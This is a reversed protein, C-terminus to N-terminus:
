NASYYSVINLAFMGLMIATGIPLGDHQVVAEANSAVGEDYRTIHERVSNAQKRAFTRLVFLAALLLVGCAFVLLYELPPYLPSMALLLKVDGGGLVGKIYGPLSLLMAIVINSVVAATHWDNLAVGVSVALFCVVLENPIRRCQWDITGILLVIIYAALV